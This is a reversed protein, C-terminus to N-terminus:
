YHFIQIIYKLKLVHFSCNQNYFLGKFHWFSLIHMFFFINFNKIGDDHTMINYAYYRYQTYKYCIVRDILFFICMWVFGLAKRILSIYYSLLFYLLFITFYLLIICITMTYLYYRILPSFFKFPVNLFILYYGFTICYFKRLLGMFGSVVLFWQTVM